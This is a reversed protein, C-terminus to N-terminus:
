FIFKYSISPMFPFICVGKLKYMVGEPTENFGIFAYSVNKQNYLNYISLNVESEGHRRHKTNYTIGIDLHHIDPLKYSNPCKYTMTLAVDKFFSAGSDLNTMPNGTTIATVPLNGRRGSQYTWSASLTWHKHFKYFMTAKFNHRRDTPDFFEEGGNIEEGPLDFTRFSKSWTYSVWGSVKGFKKQAMFELGYSRGKGCVVLSQWDDTTNTIEYVTGSDDLSSSFWSDSDFTSKKKVFAMYTAGNRYQIINDITKYYGEVSFEIGNFPEYTFGAAYQNGRMLPVDKTVPVWLNSPMTINSSSLM